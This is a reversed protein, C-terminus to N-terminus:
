KVARESEIHWRQATFLSQQLISYIMFGIDHYLTRVAMCFYSLRIRIYSVWFRLNIEQPWEKVRLLKRWILIDTQHHNKSQYVNDQKSSWIKLDVIIVYRNQEGIPGFERNQNQIKKQFKAISLFQVQVKWAIEVLRSSILFRLIMWNQVIKKANWVLLMSIWFVIPKRWITFQNLINSHKIILTKKALNLLDNTWLLPESDCHGFLPGSISIFWRQFRNWIKRHSRDM